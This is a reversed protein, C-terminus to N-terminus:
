LCLLRTSRPFASLRKNNEMQDSDGRPSFYKSLAPILFYKNSCCYINGIRVSKTTISGMKTVLKHSSGYTNHARLLGFISLGFPRTNQGFIMQLDPLPSNYPFLKSFKLYGTKLFIDPFFLKLNVFFQNKKPFFHTEPPIAGPDSFFLKVDYNKFSLYNLKHAASNDPIVFNHVLFRPIRPFYRDSCHRGAFLDARRLRRESVYNRLMKM